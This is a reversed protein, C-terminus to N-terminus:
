FGEIEPQRYNFFRNAVLRIEWPAAYFGLRYRWAGLAKLFNNRVNLDYENKYTKRMAGVAQAAQEQTLAFDSTLSHLIEPTRKNDAVLLLASQSAREIRKPLPLDKYDM